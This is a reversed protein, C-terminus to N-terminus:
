YNSSRIYKGTALDFEATEVYTVTYFRGNQVYAHLEGCWLGADYSVLETVAGGDLSYLRVIQKQSGDDTYTLVAYRGQEHVDLSISNESYTGQLQIEATGLVDRGQRMVLSLSNRGLSGTLRLTRGDGLAVAELAEESREAVEAEGLDSPELLDLVYTISRDEYLSFYLSNREFRVSRLIQDQVLRERSGLLNLGRDFIFLNTSDFAGYSNTLIRLTGGFENPSDSYNMIGPVTVEGALGIEGKRYRLASIRTVTSGDAYGEGFLYLGENGLYYNRGGGQLVVSSRVRDPDKSSYASAVVYSEDRCQSIVIDDPSALRAEGNYYLPIYAEPYDDPAAADPYYRSFLYLYGDQEAFGLMAGDQASSATLRPHVPDSLDYCSMASITRAPAGARTYAVTGAVFLQGNVTECHTIAASGAELGEFAPTEFEVRFSYQEGSSTVVSIETSNQRSIYFCGKGECIITKQGSTQLGDAGIGASLVATAYRSNAANDPSSASQMARYANLYSDDDNVKPVYGDIRIPTFGGVGLVGNDKAIEAEEAPSSPGEQPLEQPGDSVDEDAIDESAGASPESVTESSPVSVAESSPESTEASVESSPESSVESSSESVIVSSPESDTEVSVEASPESSSEIRSSPDSVAPVTSNLDGSRGALVLAFCAAVAMAAPSLVKLWSMKKKATRAELRAMMMSPELAMPVPTDEAKERLLRIFDEQGPDMELLDTKIDKRM